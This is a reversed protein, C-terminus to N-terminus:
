EVSRLCRMTAAASDLLSLADIVDGLAVVDAARSGFLGVRANATALRASNPGEETLDATPDYRSIIGCGKWAMRWLSTIGTQFAIERNDKRRGTYAFSSSVQELVAGESRM